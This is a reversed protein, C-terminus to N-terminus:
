TVLVFNNHNTTHTDHETTRTDTTHGVDTMNRNPNNIRTNTAHITNNINHNNNDGVTSASYNHGCTSTGSHKGHSYANSNRHADHNHRGAKEEDADAGDGEDDGGGGGYDDRGGDDVYGDDGDVHNDHVVVCDDVDGDAVNGWEETEEKEEEENEDDAGDGKEGGGGEFEERPQWLYAHPARAFPAPGRLLNPNVNSAIRAKPDCSSRRIQAAVEREVLSAFAKIIAPYRYLKKGASDAEGLVKLGSELQKVGSECKAFEWIDGELTRAVKEIHRKVSYSLKKRAETPPEADPQFLGTAGGRAGDSSSPTASTTTGSATGRAAASPTSVMGMMQAVGSLTEQQQRLFTETMILM